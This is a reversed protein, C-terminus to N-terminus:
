EQRAYVSTGYYLTTAERALPLPIKYVHVLIDVMLAITQAETRAFPVSKWRINSNSRSNYMLSKYGDEAHQQENEDRLIPSTQENTVNDSKEIFVVYRPKICKAEMKKLWGYDPMGPM